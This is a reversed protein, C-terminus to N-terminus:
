RSESLLCRPYEVATARDSRSAYGVIRNSYVDKLSCFYFTGEKTPHETIDTLWLENPREATFDRHVLDEHAPPGTVRLRGRKKVTVSWIRHERCLRHVRNRSASIGKRELEDRIFRYGFEPDDKHVDIATSVLYADELDRASCPNKLWKFYGQKSLQLVRSTVAIPIGEAALERVLPFKM